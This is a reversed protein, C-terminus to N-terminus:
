QAFIPTPNKSVPRHFINKDGNENRKYAIEMLIIKYLLTRCITLLDMQLYNMEGIGNSMWAQKQEDYELNFYKKIIRTIECYKKNSAITIM